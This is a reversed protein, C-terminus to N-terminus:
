QREELYKKYEADWKWPKEYFYQLNNLADRMDEGDMQDTKVLWYGLATVNGYTTHWDPEYKKM